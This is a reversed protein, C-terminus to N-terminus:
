KRAERLPERATHIRYGTAWAIDAISRLTLNRDGRLVQTVHAKSSGLREAVQTRTLGSEQIAAALEETMWTILREQEYLRRSEADRTQREDWAANPDSESDPVRLGGIAKLM